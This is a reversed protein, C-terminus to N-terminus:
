PRLKIGAVARLADDVLAACKTRLVTWAGIGDFQEIVAREPIPPMGLQKREENITRIMIYENLALKAALVRYEQLRHELNHTFLVADIVQVIPYFIMAVLLATLLIGVLFNM